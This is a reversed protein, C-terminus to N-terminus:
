LKRVERWSVAREVWQPLKGKERDALLLRAAERPIRPELEPLDYAALFVGLAESSLQQAATPHEPAPELLANRGEEPIKYFHYNLM